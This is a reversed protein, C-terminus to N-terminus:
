DVYKTNEDIEGINQIKYTMDTTIKIIVKTPTKGFPLWTGWKDCVINDNEVFWENGHCDVVKSGQKLSSIYATRGINCEKLNFKSATEPYKNEWEKYLKPLVEKFQQIFKPIEEKQYSTIVGGMLARPEFTIIKQLIDVNLKEKSLFYSNEIFSLSNVYNKLHPLPIYIYNAVKCIKKNDTTIDTKYIEKVKNKWDYYKNARATTPSVNNNRKSNPCRIESLFLDECVCKGNKFHQCEQTKDCAYSIVRGRENGKVRTFFSSYVIM